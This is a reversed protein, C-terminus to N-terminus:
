RSGAPGEAEHFYLVREDDSRVTEREVDQRSTCRREYQQLASFPPGGFLDKWRDGRSIVIRQDYPQGCVPCTTEDDRPAHSHM